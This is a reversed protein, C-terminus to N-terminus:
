YTNVSFQTNTRTFNNTIGLEKSDRLLNSGLQSLWSVPLNKQFSFPCLFIPAYPHLQYSPPQLPHMLIQMKVLDMPSEYPWLLKLLM